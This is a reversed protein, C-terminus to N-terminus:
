TKVCMCHKAASACRRGTAAGVRAPAIAAAARRKRMAKQWAPGPKQVGRGCGQRGAAVGKGRRLAATGAANEEDGSDRPNPSPCSPPSSNGVALRVARIKELGLVHGPSARDISESSTRASAPVYDDVRCTAPEARPPGAPLSCQVWAGCM